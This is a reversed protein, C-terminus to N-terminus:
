GRTANFQELNTGYRLNPTDLVEVGDRLSEPYHHAYRQTMIPTKHRMLKQVKYLDVGAQALRTAFTHRLDHFRLGDLGARKRADYFSRLINRPDLPNGVHNNFVYGNIQRIQSKAKLVDLARQNLPLTDKGKNKQELITLTRRSFDIQSWKLRIIEGKRLGTYIAFIILERLWEPSVALLSEEEAYTLWREVLNNVKERSVRIVPNVSVMEWEKMALNFAHSLLTLENNVTKPARGAERRKSKYESILKPTLATLSLDGFFRNLSKISCKDSASSMPAKNRLSYENLYKDLLERVTVDEGLPRDIWRREAVQTMVKHYIKEAVKKDATQCSRKVPEGNHSFRM